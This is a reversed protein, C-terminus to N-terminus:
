IFLYIYIFHIFIAFRGKKREERFYFYFFIKLLDCILGENLKYKKELFACMQSMMANFNSNGFFNTEGEKQIKREEESRKPPRDKRPNFSTTSIQSPPPAPTEDERDILDSPEPPPPSFSFDPMTYYEDNIVIGEEQDKNFYILFIKLLDVFLGAGPVLDIVNNQKDYIQSMKEFDFPGKGLGKGFPSSSPIQSSTIQSLLPANKSDDEGGSNAETNINSSSDSSSEDIRIKTPPASGGEDVM